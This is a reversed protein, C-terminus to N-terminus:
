NGLMCAYQPKAQRTVEGSLEGVGLTLDYKSVIEDLQRRNPSLKSKLVVRPHSDLDGSM